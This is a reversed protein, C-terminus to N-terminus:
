EHRFNIVHADRAPTIQTQLAIVTNWLSFVMDTQIAQGNRPWEGTSRMRALHDVYPWLIVRLRTLENWLAHLQDATLTSLPDAPITVGTLMSASMVPPPVRTTTHNYMRAEM